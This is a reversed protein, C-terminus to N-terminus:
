AARELAQLRQNLTEYQADMRMRNQAAMSWGYHIGRQVSIGLWPSGDNNTGLEVVGLGALARIGLDEKSQYSMMM